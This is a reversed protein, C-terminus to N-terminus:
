WKYLRELWFVCGLKQFSVKQQWSARLAEFVLYRRCLLHRGHAVARDTPWADSSGLLSDRGHFCMRPLSGSSQYEKLRLPQWVSM